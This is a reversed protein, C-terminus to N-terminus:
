VLRNHQAYGYNGGGYAGNGYPGGGFGGHAPIPQQHKNGFLLTSLGIATSIVLGLKSLFLAKKIVLAILGFIIPILAAVNFKFGALFPLLFQRAM